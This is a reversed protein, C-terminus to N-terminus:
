QLLYNELRITEYLRSSLINPDCTNKNMLKQEYNFYGNFQLSLWNIIRNQINKLPLINRFTELIFAMEIGVPNYAWRFDDEGLNYGYPFCKEVYEVAPLIIKRLQKKEFVENESYRYALALGYLLFTQYGISLNLINSRDMVRIKFRYLCKLFKKILFNKQNAAIIWHCLLNSNLFLIKSDFNFFFDKGRRKLERDNLYQGLLLTMSAFWIQKNLATDIGLNRGDIEIQYFTHSNSDYPHLYIVKKAANLYRAENLEKGIIILPELAWAQGILGNNKMLKSNKCYFTFGYPRVKKSLLYDCAKQSALLYVSNNTINYAKFLLLAWHATTRVYTDPANWPGNHGKPFAGDKRQLEIGKDASMLIIDYLKM